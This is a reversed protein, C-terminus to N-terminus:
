LRQQRHHRRKKLLRSSIRCLKRQDGDAGAGAGKGPKTDTRGRGLAQCQGVVNGHRRDAGQLSQREVQGGALVINMGNHIGSSLLDIRCGVPVTLKEPFLLGNGHLRETRPDIRLRSTMNKETIRHRDIALIQLAMKRCVMGIRLGHIKQLPGGANGAQSLRHLRAAFDAGGIRQLKAIHPLGLCLPLPLLLTEPIKLQHM